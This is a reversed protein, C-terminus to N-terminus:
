HRYTALAWRVHRALEDTSTNNDGNAPFISVGPELVRAVRACDIGQGGAGKVVFEYSRVM